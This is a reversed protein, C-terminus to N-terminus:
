SLSIVPASSGFASEADQRAIELQLRYLKDTICEIVMSQLVTLNLRPGRNLM